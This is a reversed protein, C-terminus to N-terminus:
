HGVELDKGTELSKSIAIDAFVDDLVQYAKVRTLCDQCQFIHKNVEGIMKLSEANTDKISIFDLIQEDTLHAM